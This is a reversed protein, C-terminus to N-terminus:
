RRCRQQQDQIARRLLRVERELAQLRLSLSAQSSAAAGPEAAKAGRAAPPESRGAAPAASRPAEPRTPAQARSPPEARQPTQAKRTAPPIGRPRPTLRVSATLWGGNRIVDIKISKGVQAAEVRRIIEEPQYVYKDDLRMIVDGALIGTRGAPSDRLVREVLVGGYRPVGKQSRDVQGLPVLATGLWAKPAETPRAQAKAAREAAPRAPAASPGAPGAVLLSCTMLLYIGPKPRRSRM